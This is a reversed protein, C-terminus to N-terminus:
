ANKGSMYNRLADKNTKRKQSSIIANGCLISEIHEKSVKPIGDAGEIYRIGKSRLWEIMKSYRKLGTLEKLEEISLLM